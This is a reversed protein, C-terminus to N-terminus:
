LKLLSSINALIKLKNSNNYITKLNQTMHTWHETFLFWTTGNEMGNEGINSWFVKWSNVQFNVLCSSYWYAFPMSIVTPFPVHIIWM